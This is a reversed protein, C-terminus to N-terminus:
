KWGWMGSGIYIMILFVSIIIWRAGKRIGEAASSNPVYKIAIACVLGAAVSSMAAIIIPGAIEWIQGMISMNNM